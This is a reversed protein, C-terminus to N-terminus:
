PTVGQPVTTRLRALAKSAHVRVTAASCGVLLAIDQDALGEYFRLVLVARQQKPLTSLLRWMADRDAIGDSHDQSATEPLEALPVVQSSRLRRWSLFGNVIMRRVYADPHELRGIRRWKPHARSLAEQVLDEALQRDGTLVQGFRLLAHGRAAVYEEFTPNM